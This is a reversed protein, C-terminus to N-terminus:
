PPNCMARPRQKYHPGALKTLHWREIDEPGPGRALEATAPIGPRPATTLALPSPQLTLSLEQSAISLLGGKVRLRIAHSFFSGAAGGTTLMQLNRCTLTLSSYLNCGHKSNQWQGNQLFIFASLSQHPSARPAHRSGSSSWEPKDTNCPRVRACAGHWCTYGGHHTVNLSIIVM